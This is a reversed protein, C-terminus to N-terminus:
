RPTPNSQISKSPLCIGPLWPLPLPELHTLSNTSSSPFPGAAGQLHKSSQRLCLLHSKLFDVMPCLRKPLYSDDLNPLIERHLIETSEGM